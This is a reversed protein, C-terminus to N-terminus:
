MPLHPLVTAIGSIIGSGLVNGLGQAAIEKMFDTLKQRTPAESEVVEVTLKEIDTESIDQREGVLEALARAADIDWDGNLGARLIAEVGVLVDDKSSNVDVNIQTGDGVNINSGSVEAGKGLNVQYRNDIHVAPVPAPDDITKGGIAREIATAVLKKTTRNGQFFNAPLSEALRAGDVEGDRTIDDLLQPIANRGVDWGQEDFEAALRRRLESSRVGKM